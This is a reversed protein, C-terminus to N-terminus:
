VVDFYIISKIDNEVLDLDPLFSSQHHHGDWPLEGLCMIEMISENSPFIQLLYDFSPSSSGLYSPLCYPDSAM